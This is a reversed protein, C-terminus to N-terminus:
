HGEVSSEPHDPLGCAVDVVEHRLAKWDRDSQSYSSCHFSELLELGNQGLKEVARSIHRLCRASMGTGAGAIRGCDIAPARSEGAVECVAADVWGRHRASWCCVCEQSSQGARQVADGDSETVQALSFPPQGRDLFGDSDLSARGRFLRSRV